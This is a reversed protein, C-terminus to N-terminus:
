IASVLGFQQGGYALVLRPLERCWCPEEKLRMRPGAALCQGGRQQLHTM